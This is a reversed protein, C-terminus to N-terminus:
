VKDVSEMERDIMTWAKMLWKGRKLDLDDQPCPPYPPRDAGSFALIM